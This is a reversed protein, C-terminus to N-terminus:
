QVQLNNQMGHGLAFKPVNKVFDLLNKKFQAQIIDILLTDNNQTM